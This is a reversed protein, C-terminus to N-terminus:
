FAFEIQKTLAPANVMVRAPDARRNRVDLNRTDGTETTAVVSLPHSPVPVLLTVERTQRCDGTFFVTLTKEGQSCTLQLRERVDCYAAIDQMTAVWLRGQRREATLYGLIARLQPDFWARPDSPHFWLAYAARREMAKAIFIKVKDLYDYHRAIRLNMSEYIKYVGSATREPYSLRVRPDRHRVVSVGLEALLPLYSFESQHRPFILTRARLGFPRMLENCADIEARVVDPSSYAAQFNIHSFSHTGIEHGVPSDAIQQILDPGYWGPARQVDACPDPWYWDGSWTGDSVPRPMEPHALGSASRTCRELFLHGVTAWTIPVSYEELLSLILPVHQREIEGLATAGEPGRSRWGWGMEFDASICCAAEANNYFPAIEIGDIIKAPPPLGAALNGKLTFIAELLAASGIHM